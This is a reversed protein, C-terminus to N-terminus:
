QVYVGYSFFHTLIFLYFFFLIYNKKFIEGMRHEIYVPTWMYARCFLGERIYMSLYISLYISLYMCVYM